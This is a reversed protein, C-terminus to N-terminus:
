CDHCDIFLTIEVLYTNQLHLMNKWEQLRQNNWFFELMNQSNHVGINISLGFYHKCHGGDLYSYYLM